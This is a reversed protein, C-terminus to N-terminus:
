RRSPPGALAAGGPVVRRGGPACPGSGRGLSPATARRMPRTAGGGGRGIGISPWSGGGKRPQRWLWGGVGGRSGGASCQVASGVARCQHQPLYHLPHVQWWAHRGPYCHHQVGIAGGLPIVAVVAPGARAEGDGWLARPLGGRLTLLPPQRLRRHRDPRRGCLGPRGGGVGPRQGLLRLRGFHVGGGGLCCARGGWGPLPGCVRRPRLGCGWPAVGRGLGRGGARRWCPPYGRRLFRGCRLPSGCGCLLAPLTRSPNRGRGRRAAGGGRNAVGRGGARWLLLPRVGCPGRAGRRRGGCCCFHARLARLVAGVGVGGVAVGAGGLREAGLGDGRPPRPVDAGRCGLARRRADRQRLQLPLQVGPVHHLFSPVACPCPQTGAVPARLPPCSAVPSTGLPVRLSHALACAALLLPAFVSPAGLGAAASPSLARAASPTVCPLSGPLPWPVPLARLPAPLAGLHMSRLSPRHALAPAALPLPVPVPRGCAGATYALVHTVPPPVWPVPLTCLRPPRFPAWSCPCPSRPGGPVPLVPCPLGPPLAPRLSPHPPRPAGAAFTCGM